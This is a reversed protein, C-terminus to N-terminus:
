PKYIFVGTSNKNNSGVISSSGREWFLMQIKGKIKDATDIIKKNSLSGSCFILQRINRNKLIAEIKDISEITNAEQPLPTIRGILPIPTEAYKILQICEDCEAQTGAIASTINIQQTEKKPALLPKFGVMLKSFAIGTKSFFVTAKKQAFHKQVFLKMAGYFHKNYSPSLKQTSEGKFHIITTGAFYFNKLGAKQIRYCLDVDEGYMFFDEDFGNTIEVAKKSLMMFAGALVDVTNNENEKLHGAYYAAFLKSHPFIAALGSMKNFAATATPLGRKSEKLFYGSGDIMRVGLAGINKDAQMQEMCLRLSDEAIITDPNLFLIFNGKAQKLAKNNAKGFGDNSSQWIFNVSPFKPQLWEKSGDTSNNDIVIIEADVGVCAKLVSHLCQELFYKVNYNVIIISLLLVTKQKHSIIPFNHSSCSLKKNYAFCCDLIAFDNIM